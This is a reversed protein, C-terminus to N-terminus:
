SARSPPEGQLPAAVPVADPHALPARDPPCARSLIRHRDQLGVVWSGTDAGDLLRPQMVIARAAITANPVTAVGANAWSWGPNNSRSLRSLSFSVANPADIPGTAGVLM